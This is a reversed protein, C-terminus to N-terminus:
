SSFRAGSHPKLHHSPIFRRVCRLHDRRFSRAPLMVPSAFHSAQDDDQTQFDRWRGDLPPGFLSDPSAEFLLPSNSGALIMEAFEDYDEINM